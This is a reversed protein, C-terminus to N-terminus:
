SNTWLDDITAEEYDWRDHDAGEQVFHRIAPIDVKPSVDIAILGSIHSKESIAGLQRLAERVTPIEDQDFIILRITSHGSPRAVTDFTLHEGRQVATVIDGNNIGNVFFSLIGIQYTGNGFRTRGSGNSTRLRIAKKM